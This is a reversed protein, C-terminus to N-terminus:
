KLKQFLRKLKRLKLNLLLLLLQHKKLPLQPRKLLQQLQSKNPLQQQQPKKRLLVVVKCLLKLKQKHNERNLLQELLPVPFMKLPNAKLCILLSKFDM